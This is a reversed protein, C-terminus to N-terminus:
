VARKGSPPLQLCLASCDDALGGHNRSEAMLVSVLRQPGGGQWGALLDQLWNDDEGTLGDSVMLLFMEEDLPFRVPLPVSQLEQLGAPLATGVIRRVGGHRKLYTPAAGYKYLAAQRGALDVELLDLTTFTGTEENRLTLATNIAKLAPEPEVGARLFQELLRLATSAEKRAAEGSGMGDSIMLYLLGRDTEFWATCDGCVEEGERPRCASGVLFPVPANAPRVAAEPERATQDLFESLQAFQGAARRREAELRRAYQRRLLLASLEQNVATLFEGMRLCRCRFYEPYDEALSRGRDMMAPTADNLANFTSIYEQEWCVPCLRCSRCTAEAARDFVVAPNEETKPAPSRGFSNYLDRFAAASLELRRRLRQFPTEGPRQERRRLLLLGLYHCLVGSLLIYALYAPLSRFQDQILYALEVVATTGAAAAPRFWERQGWPSDRFASCIAYVLVLIGWCRLGASFDMTLFAAAAGGCLAALGETRGRAAAVFAVGLPARGDIAALTLLFGGAGWRLAKPWRGLQERPISLDGLRM